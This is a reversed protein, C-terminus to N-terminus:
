KTAFIVALAYVVSLGIFVNLIPDGYVDFLHILRKNDETENVLSYIYREDIIFYASSKVLTLLLMARILTEFQYNYLFYSAGVISVVNNFSRLMVVNKWFGSASNLERFTPFHYEVTLSISKQFVTFIVYGILLYYVTDKDEKM